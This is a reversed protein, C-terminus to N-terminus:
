TLEPCDQRTREAVAHAEESTKPWAGAAFSITRPPTGLRSLSIFNSGTTYSTTCNPFAEQLAHRVLDVQMSTHHKAVMMGGIVLTAGVTAILADEQAQTKRRRRQALRDGLGEALGLELQEMVYQPRELPRHAYLEAVLERRRAHGAPYCRVICRVAFGPVFGTLFATSGVLYWVTHILWSTM